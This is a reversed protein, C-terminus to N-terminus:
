ASIYTALNAIYLLQMSVFGLTLHRSHFYIKPVPAWFVRLFLYRLKEAKALNEQNRLMKQLIKCLFRKLLFFFLLLLLLFNYMGSTDKLSWYKSMKKSSWDRNEAKSRFRSFHELNLLRTYTNNLMKSTSWFNFKSIQISNIYQGLRIWLLFVNLFYSSKSFHPSCLFSKWAIM